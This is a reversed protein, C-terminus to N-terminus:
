LMYLEGRRKEYDFWLKRNYARLADCQAKYLQPWVVGSEVQAKNEGLRTVVGAEIAHHFQPPLLPVDTPNVLLTPRAEYWLRVQYALDNCNFWLIINTEGGANNFYKLHHFHLPRTKSYSWWTISLELAHESIPNLQNIFGILNMQIIQRISLPSLVGRHQVANAPGVQEYPNTASQLNTTNLPNGYLDSLTYTSASTQTLLFNRNSLQPMLTVNFLSVIDNTAFANGATVMVAPKANSISVITDPLKMLISDDFQRLWFLPRLEDVNLLEDLYVANIVSTVELLRSQRVDAILRCCDAQLAALTLFDPM